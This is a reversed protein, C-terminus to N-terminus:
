VDIVEPNPSSSSSKEDKAFIFYLIVYVVIAGGFSSLALLVTAMRTLEVPMDLKQSLRLCVGLIMKRQSKYLQDERPFILAALLYLLLGTGYFVVSILLALRVIWPEIELKEALGQCVGAIIGQSSRYWRNKLNSGNEAM